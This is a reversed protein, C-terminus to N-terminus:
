VGRRLRRTATEIQKDSTGTVFSPLNGTVKQLINDVYPTTIPHETDLPAKRTSGVNRLQVRAIEVAAPDEM